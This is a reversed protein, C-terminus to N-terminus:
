LVAVVAFAWYLDRQSAMVHSFGLDRLLKEVDDPRFMHIHKPNNQPLWYEMDPHPLYLFLVGGPRLHAKWVNLAQVYNPVHELTHSSFIYDYTGPPLNYADFGDDRTINIARAGPLTWDLYGGIDLGVGKCFEMAFPMVYSCANGSKLYAPYTKGKYEYFLPAAQATEESIATPKTPTPANM